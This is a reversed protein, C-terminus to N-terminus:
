SAKKEEKLFLSMFMRAQANEDVKVFPKVLVSIKVFHCISPSSFALVVVEVREKYIANPVDCM